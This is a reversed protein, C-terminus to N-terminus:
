CPAHTKCKYSVIWLGAAIGTMYKMTRSCILDDGTFLFFFLYNTFYNVEYSLLSVEEGNKESKSIGSTARKLLTLKDRLPNSKQEIVEELNYECLPSALFVFDDKEILTPVLLYHAELKEETLIQHVEEEMTQMGQNVRKVAVPWLGGIAGVFIQTGSSGDAIKFNKSFSLRGVKKVPIAEDFNLLQEVHHAWCQM